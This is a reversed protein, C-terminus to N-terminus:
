SLVAYPWLLASAITLPGAPAVAGLGSGNSGGLTKYGTPWGATIGSMAAAGAVGRVTNMVPSGGTGMNVMVGVYYWGDAPITQAASLNLAKVTNSGWTAAGGQDATQAMLTVTTDYLAFWLHGDANSGMTLSTTGAAMSITTIVDGAYLPIGVLAMVGSSIALSAAGAIHSAFPERRTAGGLRIAEPRLGVPVWASGTSRTLLGTDTAFYAHGTNAAAAAPRASALGADLLTTWAIGEAPTANAAPVQGASGVALRAPTDAASAVILDGKADLLSELLYGTHPDAAGAHTALEADTALGLADHAALTHASELEYGTHPDGAAAHAALEADTALGMADHAALNPHVGGGAAEIADLRPDTDAEVEQVGLSPDAPVRLYLNSTGDPPGWFEAKGFEDLTFTSGPIASGGSTESIDALATGAADTYAVYTSLAVPGARRRAKVVFL